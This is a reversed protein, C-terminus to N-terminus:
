FDSVWCSSGSGPSNRETGDFGPHVGSGGAGYTAYNGGRWSMTLSSLVILGTNLLLVAMPLNVALWDHVYQGTHAEDMMPLGKRMVLASTFAVFLMLIPALAGCGSAARRLRGGDDPYGNGNGGDGGGGGALANVGGGRSNRIGLSVTPSLDGYRNLPVIRLARLLRRDTQMVFDKPAGPVHIRVAWSEGGSVVGGFNDHPPPTATIWGAYDIGRIIVLRRGKALSWFLHVPLHVASRHDRVGYSHVKNLPMLHQVYALETIAFSAATAAM